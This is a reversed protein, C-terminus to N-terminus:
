QEMGNETRVIGMQAIEGWLFVLRCGGRFDGAFTAEEQQLTHTHEGYGHSEHGHSHSADGHLHGHEHGAPLVVRRNHVVYSHFGYGM